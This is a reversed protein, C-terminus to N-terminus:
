GHSAGGLGSDSTEGSEGAKEYGGGAEGLGTESGEGADDGIALLLGEFTGDNLDLVFDGVGDDGVDGEGVSAEAEFTEAGVVIVPDRGAIMAFTGLAFLEAAVIGVGVGGDGEDEVRVSM